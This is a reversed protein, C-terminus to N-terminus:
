LVPSANGPKERQPQIHGDNGGVALSVFEPVPHRQTAAALGGTFGEAFTPNPNKAELAARLRNSNRMRIM